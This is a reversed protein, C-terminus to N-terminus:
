YFMHILSVVHEMIWFFFSFLVDSVMANPWIQLPKQLCKTQATLGLLISGLLLSCSAWSTLAQGQGQPGSFLRRSQRQLLLWMEPPPPPSEPSGGDAEERRLREPPTPLLEGGGGMVHPSGLRDEGPRLLLPPRRPRVLDRRHGLAPAVGPVSVGEEM